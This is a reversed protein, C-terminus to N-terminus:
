PQTLCSETLSAILAPHDAAQHPHSVFILDSTSGRLSEVEALRELRHERPGRDNFIVYDAAAILHEASPKWIKRSVVPDVVMLTLTPRIILALTNSEIVACRTESMLRSMERWADMIATERTIAWVVPLAGAAALRATDTGPQLILNDRTIVQFDGGLSGCVNCGKGGHPCGREGHTVTIKAAATRCRGALARTMSEAVCTKGAGSSVGAVVITRLREGSETRNVQSGNNEAAYVVM